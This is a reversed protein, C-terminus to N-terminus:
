THSSNLRTSKRDVARHLWQEAAANDKIHVYCEAMVRMAYSREAKWVSNPMALYKNIQEIAESWRSYYYLERAYYWANRPCYPDEKVSLELLPLYQGRSKTDDPYHSVLLKNTWAGVEEM